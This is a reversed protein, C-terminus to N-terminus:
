YTSSDGSSTLAANGNMGNPFFGGKSAADKTLYAINLVQQPTRSYAVGFDDTPVIDAVGGANADIGQDDDSKGDLKDRADSLKGAKGILGKRYLTTRILGAHYGEAALIGAAAEIYTTNTILPAAGKYATVGVDEFLFAALLFAEDSAYPDFSDIKAAKAAAAFAGSASIDLAPQAVAASGLVRRLFAVHALEDAAIERAYSAVAPDTFSVQKGGTAAGQTGTGTMMAAPLGAGFAAWSYFNAELYELNLAFNLVDADGLSASPTPSPTPSGKDDDGGCASLMMLGGAALGTAGTARLFRRREARRRDTAALAAAFTQQTM